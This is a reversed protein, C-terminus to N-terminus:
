ADLMIHVHDKIDDCPTREPAGGLDKSGAKRISWGTRTGCPNQQNAFTVVQEDTWSKPVCVQMDLLGRYSVTPKARKKQKTSM